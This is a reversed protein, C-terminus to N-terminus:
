SYSSIGPDLCKWKQHVFQLSAPCSQFGGTVMVSVTQHIFLHSFLHNIKDDDCQVQYVALNKASVFKVLLQWTVDSGDSM